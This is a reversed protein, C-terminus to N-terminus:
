SANYQLHGDNMRSKVKLTKVDITKLIEIKMGFYFAECITKM